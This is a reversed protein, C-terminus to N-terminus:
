EQSSSRVTSKSNEVALEFKCILFEFKFLACVIFLMLCPWIFCPAAGPGDLPWASRVSRASRALRASLSVVMPQGSHHNLQPAATLAARVTIACHCLSCKSHFERERERSFSDLVRGIRFELTFELIVELIQEIKEPQRARIPRCSTSLRNAPRNANTSNTTHRVYLCLVVSWECCREVYCCFMACDFAFM